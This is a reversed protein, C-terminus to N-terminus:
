AIVLTANPIPKGNKKPFADALYASLDDIVAIVRARSDTFDIDAHANALSKAPNICGVSWL